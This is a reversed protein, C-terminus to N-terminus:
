QGLHVAILNLRLMGALVAPGDLDYRANRPRVRFLHQLVGEGTIRKRHTGPYRAELVDNARTQEIGAEDAVEKNKHKEWRAKAAKSALAQKEARTMKEMRKAGGKSARKAFLADRELSDTM